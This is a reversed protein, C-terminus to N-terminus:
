ELWAGPEDDQMLTRVLRPRDATPLQLGLQISLRGDVPSARATTVGYACWVDAWSAPHLAMTVLMRSGQGLLPITRMFGKAPAEFAYPAADLSPSDYIWTTASLSLWSAPSYRLDIMGTAGSAIMGHRQWSSRLGEIRCRYRVNKTIMGTVQARLLIREHRDTLRRSTTDVSIGDDELEMQGRLDLVSTTGLPATFETLLQLSRTPLPMGHRRTPVFTLRLASMISTRAAIRTTTGAILVTSTGPLHHASLVFRSREFLADCRAALDVTGGYSRALESSITMNGNLTMRTFLSAATMDGRVDIASGISQSGNTWQAVCGYRDASFLASVRIAPVISTRIALGRSSGEAIASTWPRIVVDDYTTFAQTRITTRSPSASGFVLGRGTFLGIDGGLIEVPGIRTSIWATGNPGEPADTIVGGVDAYRSSLRMRNAIRPVGEDATEQWRSRIMATSVLPTPDCDFGTCALLMIRQDTSLCLTDVILHIDRLGKEIMSVIRSATMRGIGPLQTLEDIDGNLLCIPAERYRDLANWVPGDQGHAAIVLCVLPILHLLRNMSQPSRLHHSM